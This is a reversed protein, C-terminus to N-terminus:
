TADIATTPAITVREKRGNCRAAIPASHAREVSTSECVARRRTVIIIKSLWISKCKTAFPLRPTRPSDGLKKLHALSVSGRRCPAKSRRWRPLKATREPHAAAIYRMATTATIGFLRMLRLPDETAAAEDLIRDRRLAQITVGRPFVRRLTAINVAPQEPDLATRRSVLLHPNTSAPWRGHRYSFWEAVLQHTLEELYVTHQKIGRNVTLTGAALDLDANVLTHIEHGPLAHVAVLAVVFRGFATKAYDLLGALLDSPVSRPLGPLDGVALTKTPNRFIVREQRLAGFLSRLCVALHRGRNGRRSNVVTDIDTTTIQRLTTVGDNAWGALVPQLAALYRRISRYGRAPRERRGQGRLVTVWTRVENGLSMPLADITAEIWEQNRDRHRDPDEILLGRARLFQCVRKAKLNADLQALDHVDREWVETRGLWFLLIRLTRLDRHFGPDQEDDRCMQVFDDILQTAVETLPLPTRGNRRLRTLVPSWDRRPLFLAQQGPPVYGGPPGVGEADSTDGAPLLRAPGLTGLPLDIMLQAAHSPVPEADDLHRYLHCLRCRGDRLPLDDRLCRCCRGRPYKERWHRCPDCRRATKARRAAMWSDCDRCSRPEPQPLPVPDTIYATSPQNTRSFRLPTPAPELFGARQLILRDADGNHPLDRLTPEPVREAGDAERVALALRVMPTVKIRWGKSLRHEAAMQRIVAEAQDWDRVPRQAVARVTDATFTRPVTFLLLQGRPVPELVCPGNVLSQQAKLKARWNEMLRPGNGNSRHLPRASTSQDRYFGVVLQLQRPRASPLALAWEVDDEAGSRKSAPGACAM